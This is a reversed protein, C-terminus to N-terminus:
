LEAGSGPATSRPRRGAKDTLATPPSPRTGGDGEKIFAALSHHQAPGMAAHPCFVSRGTGGDPLTNVVLKPSWVRPAATVHAPHPSTPLLDPAEAPFVQRANSLASAHQVGLRRSCESPEGMKRSLSVVCLIPAHFTRPKDAEKQLKGKLM